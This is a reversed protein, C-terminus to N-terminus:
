YPRPPVPPQQEPPAAPPQTGNRIGPPANCYWSLRPSVGLEVIKREGEPVAKMFDGYADWYEVERARNLTAGAERAKTAEREYPQTMDRYFARARDATEPSIGESSWTYGAACIDVPKSPAAKAEAPDPKKTAEKVRGIDRGTSTRVKGAKDIEIMKQGGGYAPTAALGVSVALCILFDPNRM